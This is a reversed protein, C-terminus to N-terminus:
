AQGYAEQEVHDLSSSLFHGMKWDGLFQLICLILLFQAPSPHLGLCTTVPM